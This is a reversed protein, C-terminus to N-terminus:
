EHERRQIPRPLYKKLQNAIAHAVPPPVANSIQTVQESLNGKLIYDPPFGQLLMAEYLSLRRLGSPHVHIERHGYAVTRSPKDWDLRILSRGSSVLDASFRSSRPRMTWHNPHHPIDRPTLSRNFFIPPPLHGIAHRVTSRVSSSPSPFAFEKESMGKRLGVLFVRERTQPVGFDAANILAVSVNFHKALKRKLSTFIRQNNKALLEPVNEFVFFQIPYIEALDVILAAYRRALMNRPDAQSRQTNARSFGQCPPGGIIGVPSASPSRAKLFETIHAAKAYLLDLTQAVPQNSNANHTDIAAQFYDAAFIVDYGSKTFGLDLGGAGCFFSLIQPRAGVSESEAHVAGNDHDRGISRPNQLQDDM